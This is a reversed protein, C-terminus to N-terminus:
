TWVSYCFSFLKTAHMITVAVPEIYSDYFKGFDYVNRLQPENDNVDMVNVILDAETCTEAAFVNSKAIFLGYAFM